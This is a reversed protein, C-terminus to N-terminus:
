ISDNKAGYFIMCKFERHCTENAYRTPEAMLRMLAATPALQGYARAPAPVDGLQHHNVHLTSEAHALWATYVGKTMIFVRSALTRTGVGFADCCCSSLGLCSSVEGFLRM